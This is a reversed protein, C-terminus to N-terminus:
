LATFQDVTLGAQRIVKRLLGRGLEPHDPISLTWAYGPRTLMMHSGRRRALTWGAREFKRVAERGSVLRLEASM